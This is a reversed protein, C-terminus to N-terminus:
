KMIVASVETNWAQLTTHLSFAKGTNIRCMIGANYIYLCVNKGGPKGLDTSKILLIQQHRTQRPVSVEPNLRMEADQMSLKTDQAAINSPM